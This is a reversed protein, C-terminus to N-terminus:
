HVIHAHYQWTVKVFSLGEGDDERCGVSCTLLLYFWCRCGGFFVHDEEFKSLRNSDFNVQFFSRYSIDLAHDKLFEPHVWVVLNQFKSTLYQGFRALGEVDVPQNVVGEDLYVELNAM